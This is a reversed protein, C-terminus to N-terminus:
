RALYMDDRSILLEAASGSVNNALCCYGFFLGVFVSEWCRHNNNKETWSLQLINQISLMITYTRTRGDM